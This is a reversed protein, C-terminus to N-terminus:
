SSWKQPAVEFTHAAPPQVKLVVCQASSLYENIEALSRSYPMCFYGKRQMGQSSHPTVCDILWVIPDQKCFDIDVVRTPGTLVTSGPGNDLIDMSVFSIVNSM